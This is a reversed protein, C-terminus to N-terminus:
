SNASPSLVITDHELHWNDASPCPPPLLQCYAASVSTPFLSPLHSILHLRMVSELWESFSLQQTPPPGSWNSMGGLSTTFSFLINEAHCSCTAPQAMKAWAALWRCCHHKKEVGMGGMSTSTASLLSSLGFHPVSKPPTFNSAFADRKGVVRFIVAAPHTTAWELKVHWWAIDGFYLEM